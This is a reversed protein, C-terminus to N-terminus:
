SITIKRNNKAYDSLCVNILTQYPVGSDDALKKFYDVVSADLNITIKQKTNKSYPNKRPSLAKIDYEDRM